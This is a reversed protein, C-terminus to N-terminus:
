ATQGIVEFCLLCVPHTLVLTMLSLYWIGTGLFSLFWRRDDFFSVYSTSVWCFCIAHALTFFFVRCGLSIYSPSVCSLSPHCVSVQSFSLFCTNLTGLLRITYTPTVFSLHRLSVRWFLKITIICSFFPLM